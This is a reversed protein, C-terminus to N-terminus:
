IEVQNLTVEFTYGADWVTTFDLTNAGPDAVMASMTCVGGFTGVTFPFYTFDNASIDNAEVKAPARYAPGYARGISYYAGIGDSIGYSGDSNQWVMVYEMDTYQASSSGNRVVTSTYLGAISNVLDGTEVVYVDRTVSGEFGDKNTASYTIPYYDSVNEDLTNGGRYKGRVSTRVEIEEGGETATVGPENFPTGKELFITAAGQMDFTPYNTVKSVNASSEEKECSTFLMGCFLFATILLSKNLLKM